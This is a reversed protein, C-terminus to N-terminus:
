DERRFRLPAIGTKRRFVSSFHSQNCFGVLRAIEALPLQTQKLLVRAKEVRARTIYQHPSTGLAAKFLRAFHFPSLCATEALLKHTLRKDLNSLIFAEVVRVRNRAVPSLSRGPSAAGDDGRNQLVQRVAEFLHGQELPAVLYADAGSTLGDREDDDTICIASTQIIPIDRTQADARMRQTLEFGTMDPLKVDILALDPREIQLALLAESGSAADIVEHGGAHLMRHKVYRGADDDDVNLIRIRRKM